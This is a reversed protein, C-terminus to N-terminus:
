FKWKATPRILKNFYSTLTNIYQFQFAVKNKSPSKEGDKLFLVTTSIISKGLLKKSKINKIGKTSNNGLKDIYSQDKEWEWPGISVLTNFLLNSESKFVETIDGFSAYDVIQIEKDKVVKKDNNGNNKVLASITNSDIEFGIEKIERIIPYLDDKIDDQLQSYIWDFDAENLSSLKLAILKSTDINTM